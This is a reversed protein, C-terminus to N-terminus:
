NLGEYMGYMFMYYFKKLDLLFRGRRAFVTYSAIFIINTMM